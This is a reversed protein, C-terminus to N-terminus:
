RYAQVEERVRKRQEDLTLLGEANIRDMINSHVKMVHEVLHDERYLQQNCEPCFWGVPSPLSNATKTQARLAQYYRSNVDM